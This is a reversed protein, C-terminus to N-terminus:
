ETSLDRNRYAELEAFAKDRELELRITETESEVRTIYRAATAEEVLAQIENDKIQRQLRIEDLALEAEADSITVANNTKFTFNAEGTGRDSIEWEAYGNQLACIRTAELLAETRILAADSITLDHIVEREFKQSDLIDLHFRLNVMLSIFLFVSLFVITFFKNISRAGSKIATGNSM